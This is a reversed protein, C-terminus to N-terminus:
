LIHCTIFFFLPPSKTTVYFSQPLQTFIKLSYLFDTWIDAKKKQKNYNNSIAM